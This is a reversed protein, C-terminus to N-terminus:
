PSSVFEKVLRIDVRRGIADVLNGDSGTTYVLAGFQVTNIVICNLWRSPVGSVAFGPRCVRHCGHCGVKLLREGVTQSSALHNLEGGPCGHSLIM